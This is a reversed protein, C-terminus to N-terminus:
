DRWECVFVFIEHRRVPHLQYINNSKGREYKFLTALPLRLNQLRTISPTLKKLNKKCDNM